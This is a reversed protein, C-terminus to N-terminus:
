NRTIFLQSNNKDIFCLLIIPMFQFSWYPAGAYLQDLLYHFAFLQLIIIHSIESKKIFIFKIPYYILIILYLFFIFIGLDYIAQLIPIDLFFPIFGHGFFLQFLTANSEHDIFYEISLRRNSASPDISSSGFYSSIGNWINTSVKDIMFKFVENSFYFYILGGILIFITITYIYRPINLFNSKGKTTYHYWYYLGISLVCIAISSRTNFMFLGLFSGVILLPKILRELKNKSRYVLTTIFSLFLARGITIKDGGEAMNNADDLANYFVNELYIGTFGKTVQYLVVFNVFAAIYFLYRDLNSLTKNKEHTSLSFIVTLLYLQMPLIQNNLKSSPSPIVLLYLLTILFFFSFLAFSKNWSPLRLRKVSKYDVSLIFSMAMLFNVIEITPFVNRIATGFQVGILMLAFSFESLSSFYRGSAESTPLNM